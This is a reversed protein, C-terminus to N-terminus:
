ADIENSKINKSKAENAEPSESLRCDKTKHLKRQKHKWCCHYMKYNKSKTKTERDKPAVNKCAYKGTNQQIKLPQGVKRPAGGKRKGHNGPKFGSSSMAKKLKQIKETLKKVTVSLYKVEELIKIKNAM